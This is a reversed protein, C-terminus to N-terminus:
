GEKRTSERPFGALSSASVQRGPIDPNCRHRSPGHRREKTTAPGRAAPPARPSNRRRARYLPPTTQPAAIPPLRPRASPQTVPVGTQASEDAPARPRTGSSSSQRPGKVPNLSSALSIARESCPIRMSLTPARANIGHLAMCGDTTANNPLCIDEHPSLPNTSSDHGAPSVGGQQPPCRQPDGHPLLRTTKVDPGRASLQERPQRRPPFPDGLESTALGSFLADLLM